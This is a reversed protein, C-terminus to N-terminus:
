EELPVILPTKGDLMVIAGLVPRRVLEKAYFFAYKKDDILCGCNAGFITDNIGSMYQVGLTSHTHAIVTSNRFAKATNVHAYEGSRNGHMYTINNLTINDCYKWEKPMDFIHNITNLVIDPPIGIEYIRKFIRSEHNGSTIIMEPFVSAWESVRTKVEQIEQRASMADPDRTYRSFCYQDTLDGLQIVTDCSFEKKLDGCFRLAKKHEFPFHLDPIVLINSPITEEKEYNCSKCKYRQKNNRKGNKSMESKCRNCIM